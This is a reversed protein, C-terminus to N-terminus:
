LPILSPALRVVVRGLGPGAVHRTKVAVVGFLVAVLSLAVVFLPRPLVQLPDVTLLLEPRMLLFSSASVALAGGRGIENVLPILLIGRFFIEEAVAAVAVFVATSGGPPAVSAGPLALAAVVVIPLSAALGYGLSRPIGRKGLGLAPAGPVLHGEGFVLLLALPLAVLLLVRSLARGAVIGIGGETASQLMGGWIAWALISLTPALYWTPKSERRLLPIWGLLVPIAAALAM